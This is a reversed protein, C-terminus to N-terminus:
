FCYAARVTEQQAHLRLGAQSDSTPYLLFRLARTARRREHVPEWFTCSEDNTIVTECAHHIGIKKVYSETRGHCGSFVM